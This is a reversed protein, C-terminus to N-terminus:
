SASVGWLGRHFDEYAGRATDLSPSPRPLGDAKICDSRFLPESGPDSVENHYGPAPSLPKPKRGHTSGGIQKSTPPDFSSEHCVVTAPRVPSAM